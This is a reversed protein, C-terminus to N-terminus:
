TGCLFHNSKGYDCTSPELNTYVATIFRHWIVKGASGDKKLTNKEGSGISVQLVVPKTKDWIM